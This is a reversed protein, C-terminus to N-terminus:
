PTYAHHDWTHQNVVYTQAADDSRHREYIGGDPSRKGRLWGAPRRLAVMGIKERQCYAALWIDAMNQVPFDDVTLRRLRDVRFGVTGTGLLHVPRNRDLPQAFHCKNLQGGGYYSDVTENPLDCAHYGVVYKGDYTTVAAATEKAYGDPYDIDDDITLMIASRDVVPIFYFKGVDGINGRANAGLVVTVNKPVRRHWPPAPGNVYVFMRDVTPAFMQITRLAMNYRVPHTAMSAVISFSM